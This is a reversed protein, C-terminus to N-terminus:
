IKNLENISEETIEILDNIQTISETICLLILDGSSRAFFLNKGSRSLIYETKGINATTEIIKISKTMRALMLSVLSSNIKKDLVSAMMKGDIRVIAANKIGENNSILSDLIETFDKKRMKKIEIKKLIGNEIILDKDLNETLYKELTWSRWTRPIDILMEKRIEGDKKLLQDFKTKWNKWIDNAIEIKKEITGISFECRNISQEIVKKATNQENKQILEKIRVLPISNLIEQEESIDIKLEATKVMKKQVEEIKQELVKLNELNIKKAIKQASEYYGTKLISGKFFDEISFYISVLGFLILFSIIGGIPFITMNYGINELILTKDPINSPSIFNLLLGFILLGVGLIIYQLYKPNSKGLWNNKITNLDQRKSTGTIFYWFFLLLMEILRLIILLLACVFAFAIFYNSFNFFFTFGLNIFGLFISTLPTGGLSFSEITIYPTKLNNEIWEKNILEDSEFSYMIFSSIEGGGAKNISWEVSDPNIISFNSSTKLTTKDINISDPIKDVIKITSFPRDSEETIQIYIDYKVYDVPAETKQIKNKIIEGSYETKLNNSIADYIKQLETNDYNIQNCLYYVNKDIIPNQNIKGGLISIQEIKQIISEIKEKELDNENGEIENFIIDIEKIKNDMENFNSNLEFLDEAFPEGMNLYIFQCIPAGICAKACTDVSICPLDERNLGLYQKCQAEGTVAVINSRKKDFNNLYIKLEEITLNEFYYKDDIKENEINISLKSLNFNPKISIIKQTIISNNYTQEEFIYTASEIIGDNNIDSEYIKSIKEPNGGEQYVPATCGFTFLLILLLGLIIRKQM